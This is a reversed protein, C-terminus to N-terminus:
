KKKFLTLLVLTTVSVVAFTIGIKRALKNSAHLDVNNKYQDMIENAHDENPMWSTDRGQVNRQVAVLAVMDTYLTKLRDFHKESTLAELAPVPQYNEDKIHTLVDAYMEVVRFILYSQIKNHDAGAWFQQSGRVHLQLLLYSFTVSTEKQIAMSVAKVNNNNKTLIKSIETGTTERARLLADMFNVPPTCISDLDMFNPAKDNLVNAANQVFNAM